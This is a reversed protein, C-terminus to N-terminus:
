TNEIKFILNGINGYLVFYKAIKVLNIIYLKSPKYNLIQM